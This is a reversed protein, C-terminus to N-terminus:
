TRWFELYFPHKRGNGTIKFDCWNFDDRLTELVAQMQPRIRSKPGYWEIVSAIYILTNSYSKGQTSLFRHLAKANDTKLQRRINWSYYTAQEKLWKVMLPTFQCYILGQEQFTKWQVDVIRFKGGTWSKGFYLDQRRTELEISIQNLRKISAVVMKYNKGGKTSLGMEDIIQGVTAM